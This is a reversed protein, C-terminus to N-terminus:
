RKSPMSGASPWGAAYILLADAVSREGGPDAPRNALRDEVVMTSSGGGDLGMADWAGLSQMLRAAEEFTVGVSWDPRKGDVVVLLLHGTRTIGALTRATRRRSFPRDFGEAQDDVAVRGQRVLWPGGNIADWVDATPVRLGSLGHRRLWTAAQGIGAVVQGYCPIHGGRRRISTVRGGQNLVAEVGPGALTSAGFGRNFLVMDSTVRRTHDHALDGHLGLDRVRGPTRDIGDIRYSAGDGAVVTLGAQVPAIRFGKRGIWLCCRAPLAEHLLLGHRASYGVLSGPQGDHRDRVFFGGNVAAVAGARRAMTRVTATGLVQGGGLGM